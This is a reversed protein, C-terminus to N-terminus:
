GSGDIWINKEIEVHLYQIFLYIHIKRSFIGAHSYSLISKHKKNQKKNLFGHFVKQVMVLASVNEVNLVM